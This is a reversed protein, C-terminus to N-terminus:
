LFHLWLKTITYMELFKPLNSQFQISHYMCIYSFRKINMLNSPCYFLSNWSFKLKNILGIKKCLIHLVHGSNVQSLELEFPFSSKEFYIESWDEEGQKEIEFQPFVSLFFSLFFFCKLFTHFFSLFYYYHRWVMWFQPPVKEISQQWKLSFSEFNAEM